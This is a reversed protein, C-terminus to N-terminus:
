KKLSKKATQVLIFKSAVIGLVAILLYFGPHMEINVEGLWKKLPERLKNKEKAELKKQQLLELYVSYKEFLEYEENSVEIETDQAQQLKKYLRKAQVYESKNEFVSVRAYYEFGFGLLLDFGEVIQGAIDETNIPIKPTPKIEAPKNLDYDPNGAINEYDTNIAVAPKTPQSLEKAFEEVTIIM